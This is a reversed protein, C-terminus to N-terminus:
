LYKFYILFMWKFILFYNLILILYKLSFIWLKLSVNKKVTFKQSNFQLSVSVIFDNLSYYQHTFLDQDRPSSSSGRSHPLLHDPRRLTHTHSLTHPSEPWLAWSSTLDRHQLRSALQALEVSRLLEAVSSCVPLAKIQRRVREKM